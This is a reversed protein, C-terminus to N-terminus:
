ACIMYSSIGSIKCVFKIKVAFRCFIGLYAFLCVDFFTRACGLSQVRM